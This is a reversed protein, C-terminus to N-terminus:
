NPEHTKLDAEIESFCSAQYADNTILECLLHPKQLEGVVLLSKAEALLCEYNNPPTLLQCNQIIHNVDGDYDSNVLRAVNDACYKQYAKPVQDCYAAVKTINSGWLQYWWGAQSKYCSPKFRDEVTDCPAMLNTQSLSPHQPPIIDNHDGHVNEMFLGSSCWSLIKAQPTLELSLRDCNKLAPELQYSSLTMFAHGAGHVCMQLQFDSLTRCYEIMERVGEFGIDAIAGTILGHTCGNLTDKFCYPLAKQKHIQYATEGIEHALFHSFGGPPLGTQQLLEIAKEVGLEYTIEDMLKAAQQYDQRYHNIITEMKEQPSLTKQTQLFSFFLGGFLALCLLLIKARTM